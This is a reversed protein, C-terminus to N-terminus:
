IQPGIRGEVVTNWGMVMRWGVVVASVVVM